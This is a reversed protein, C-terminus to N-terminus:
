GHHRAGLGQFMARVNVTSAEGISDFNRGLWRDAADRGIDFLHRLFAWETNLKSSAGLPRMRKRGEIMHIRMQRYADPLYGDSKLRDVFDIARLERLLSANFTIENVRNAIERATKPVGPRVVPNIQIIVIDASPSEDIFPFLVPNGMYGGDWYHSGDIEVAQFMHPLCASALVVDRHIEDRKFVRVRGTEVNTASLYLGLDNCCRVKDFDIHQDLLDRLPHMNLPNTEYPSAIRSFLDAALYSPSTDLSWNGFLVDLPSRRIPSGKGAEAVAYWFDHLARRAGEAQGDYMGQAAVVANMAGASTGSIADIWLRDEELIRDLVGWTFAGHSGGGQLALNVTKM